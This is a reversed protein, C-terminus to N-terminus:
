LNLAAILDDRDFKQRVCIVVQEIPPFHLSKLPFIGSAFQGMTLRGYGTALATLAVTRAGLSAAHQLSKLVIDSIAQSSSEYLGNVAVAHLVATFRTGHPKTQVIEGRQVHRLHRDAMYQHLEKQMGEGFRLLIEGGVGGSLNLLVNASCILVDAPQDVINGVNVIWRM